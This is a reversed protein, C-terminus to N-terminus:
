QLLRLNLQRGPTDHVVCACFGYSVRQGLNSECHNGSALAEEGDQMRAYVGPSDWLGKYRGVKGADRLTGWDVSFIGDNEGELNREVYDKNAPSM